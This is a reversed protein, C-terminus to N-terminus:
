QHAEHAIEGHFRVASPQARYARRDIALSGDYLLYFFSEATLYNVREHAVIRVRRLIAKKADFSSQNLEGMLRSSFRKENLWIRRQHFSIRRTHPVFHIFLLTSKQM